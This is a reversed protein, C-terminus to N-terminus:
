DRLGLHQLLEQTTQVREAPLSTNVQLEKAARYAGGDFLRRFWRGVQCFPLLWKQRELVPFQVKMIDYPLFLRSLVYRFGKVNRTHEAAIRNEVGGYLGGCLIYQELQASIPDKEAGSFWIDSLKEAAKAFSLLGSKRLLEERENRVYDMSYRLVWIDLFPRMGCGGIGFHKAMHAIHYCYFMADSLVMHYQKGKVPMAEEWITEMVAPLMGLESKEMVCYHLELHVDGPSDFSVDHATKGKPTYELKTQLLDTARELNEEHILIDVDCSTRMWDEPYFERLVAGKLPIFPIEGEELVKAIAEQEHSLQIYRYTALMQQQMCRKTIATQELELKNLAISLLHALDYKDALAFVKELTEPTCASIVAENGTWGCVAIRLLSFLLEEVGM